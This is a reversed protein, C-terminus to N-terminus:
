FSKKSRGMCSAASHRMANPSFYFKETVSSLKRFILVLPARDGEHTEPM